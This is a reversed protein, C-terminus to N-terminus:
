VWGLGGVQLNTGPVAAGTAGQDTVPMEVRLSWPRLEPVAPTCGWQWVRPRTCSPIYM